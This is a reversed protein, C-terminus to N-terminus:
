ATAVSTYSEVTGRQFSIAELEFDTNLDDSMEFSFLNQGLFDEDFLFIMKDSEIKVDSYIGAFDVDSSSIATGNFDLIIMNYIKSEELKDLKTVATFNYYPSYGLKDDIESDSNLQNLVISWIKDTTNAITTNGTSSYATMGVSDPTPVMDIEVDGLPKSDLNIWQDNYGTGNLYLWHYTNAKPIITDNHELESKILVFDSYGLEDYDSQTFDSVLDYHDLIEYDYLYGYVEDDDLAISSTNKVIFHWNTPDATQYGDVQSQLASNRNYLYVGGGISGLLLVSIIAIWVGKKLKAM